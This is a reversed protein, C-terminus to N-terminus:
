ACTNLAACQLVSQDDQNCVATMASELQSCRRSSVVTLMNQRESFDMFSSSECVYLTYWCLSSRHAVHWVFHTDVSPGGTPWMGCLFMCSFALHCLVMESVIDAAAYLLRIQWSYSTALSRPVGKPESSVCDSQTQWYENVENLLCWVFIKGQVRLDKDFIQLQLKFLTIFKYEKRM